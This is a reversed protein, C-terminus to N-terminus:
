GTKAKEGEEPINYMVLNLSKQDIAFLVKDGRNASYAALPTMAGCDKSQM